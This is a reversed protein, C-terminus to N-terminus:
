TIASINPLSNTSILPIIFTKINKYLNHKTCRLKPESMKTEGVFQQSMACVENYGMFGDEKTYPGPFGKPGTPAGMVQTNEENELLFTRGYLPLGLVLKRSPAGLKLMYKIAYEQLNCIMM